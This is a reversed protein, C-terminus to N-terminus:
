RDHLAHSEAAALRAAGELIIKRELEALERAVPRLQQKVLPAMSPDQLVTKLMEAAFMQLQEMEDAPTRLPEYDDDAAAPLVRALRALQVSTMYLQTSVSPEQPSPTIGLSGLKANLEQQRRIDNPDYAKLASILIAKSLETACRISDGGERFHSKNKSVYSELSDLELLQSYFPNALVWVDALARGGTRCGNDAVAPLAVCFLALFFVLFAASVIERCNM